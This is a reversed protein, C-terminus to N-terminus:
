IFININKFIFIGKNEFLKSKRKLNKFNSKQKDQIAAM